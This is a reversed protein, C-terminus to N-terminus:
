EDLELQVSQAIALFKRMALNLADTRYAIGLGTRSGKQDSLPKLVVNRLRVREWIQPVVAVGLGSEVLALITQAQEGYQVVNPSFGAQLCAAMVSFYMSPNGRESPLVFADQALDLLRVSRAKALRHGEPLAVIYADSQIPVLTISPMQPAPFRVIGIDTKGEDILTLISQTDNEALDLEISPYTMRLRAITRPLFAMMSSPVFTIHLRGIEGTTVQQLVQRIQDAHFVVNRAPGLVAKGEETLRVSQSTREFLKIGLDLELRKIAMSLPPQAINLREAARHFNLTEAVAVFQRLQQLKM